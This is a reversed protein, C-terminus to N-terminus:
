RTRRVSKKARKKAKRAVRAVHARGKPASALVKKARSATKQAAKKAAKKAAKGQKTRLLKTAAEEIAGAVRRAEKKVTTLLEANAKKM